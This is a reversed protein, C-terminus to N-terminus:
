EVNMFPCELPTLKHMERYTAMAEESEPKAAIAQGKFPCQGDTTVNNESTSVDQSANAEVSTQSKANLDKEDSSPTSTGYAINDEVSIHSPAGSDKELDNSTSTANDSDNQAVINAVSVTDDSVPIEEVDAASTVPNGSNADKSVVGLNDADKRERKSNALRIEEALDKMSDADSKVDVLAADAHDGNLEVKPEPASMTTATPVNEDHGDTSTSTATDTEQESPAAPDIIQKNVIGQPAIQRFMDMPDFWTELKTVRLKDDVQAM